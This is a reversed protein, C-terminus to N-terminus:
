LFKESVQKQRRVKRLTLDVVVAVIHDDERLEAIRGHLEYGEESLFAVLRRYDDTSRGIIAIQPEKCVSSMTKTKM